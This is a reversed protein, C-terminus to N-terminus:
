FPIDKEPDQNDYKYDHDKRKELLSEIYDTMEDPDVLVSFNIILYHPPKSLDEWEGESNDSINFLLQKIEKTCEDFKEENNQHGGILVTITGQLYGTGGTNKWSWEGRLAYKNAITTLQNMAKQTKLGM